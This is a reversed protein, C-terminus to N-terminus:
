GCGGTSVLTTYPGGPPTRDCTRVERRAREPGEDAEPAAAPIRASGPRDTSGGLTGPWLIEVDIPAQRHTHRVVGVGGKRGLRVPTVSGEYMMLTAWAALVRGSAEKM